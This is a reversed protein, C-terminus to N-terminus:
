ILGITTTFKVTLHVIGKKLHGTAAYRHHITIAFSAHAFVDVNLAIHCIGTIGFKVWYNVVVILLM